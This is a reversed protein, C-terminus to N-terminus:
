PADFVAAADLVERGDASLRSARALVADRVTAPIAGSAIDCALVESAFFPNGGTLRHLSAPDFRNGRADMSILAQIGAESLPEVRLRRTTTTTALDGLVIRVPHNPGGEDDRYTVLLLARALELRRGLFRLLDITAQDAWQVDEIVMVTPISGKNLEALAARFIRDRPADERLLRDLEGGISAAIDFLPGLPRPTSLADCVGRLIRVRGRARECFRDILTSKGVGAEGGVFVLRGSGTASERLWADLAELQPTRELLEIATGGGTSFLRRPNDDGPGSQKMKRLSCPVSVAADGHTPLDARIRRANEYLRASCMFVIASSSRSTGSHVDMRNTVLISIALNLM